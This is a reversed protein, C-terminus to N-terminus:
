DARRRRTSRSEIGTVSRAFDVFARRLPSGAAAEALTRGSLLAADLGDQDFPLVVEPTRGAFRELAASAEALPDRGASARRLKNLVVRTPTAVEADALDTLARVLRQLGIADASGVVYVCDALDLVSLTAGNRRPALSDFSIEEDAEVSFGCDVVTYDALTRAAGLVSEVASARVEPWRQPLAIGTLVRLGPGVQWCLRALGAADLRAGTAARCAAALGPSEDLIGLHAAVVGGYVDADVLLASAGLRAIEDALTVAVTTRGPAGTPGWVALVTGRRSPAGEGPDLADEGGGADDRDLTALPDAFSRATGRDFPRAVADLVVSAVVAPEADAPVLHEVGFAQLRDEAASDHRPVVGIPRVGSAHLRDVADADFRRLSAGILAARAQGTAAVALLEVVDVCRRVVTAGHDDREFAAILEAEWPAGDAAVLLPVKM